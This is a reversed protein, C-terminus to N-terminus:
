VVALPAVWAGTPRDLAAPDPVGLPEGAGRERQRPERVRAVLPGRREREQAAATVGRRRRPRMAM